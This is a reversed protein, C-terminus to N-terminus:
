VATDSSERPTTHAGGSIGPKAELTYQSHWAEVSSASLINKFHKVSPQPNLLFVADIMVNLSSQPMNAAAGIDLLPYSLMKGHTRVIRSIVSEKFWRM